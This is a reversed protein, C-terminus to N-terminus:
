RPFKRFSRSLVELTDFQRDREPQITTVNTFSSLTRTTSLQCHAPYIREDDWKTRWEKKEWKYMKKIEITDIKL